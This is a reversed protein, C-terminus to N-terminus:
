SGDAPPHPLTGNDLEEYLKRLELEVRVAPDVIPSGQYDGTRNYAERLRANVYEYYSGTHVTQHRTRAGLRVRPNMSSKPLHIGNRYDNRPEIGVKELIARAEAARPDADAVIHHTDHGPPRPDGHAEMAAALEESARSYGIEQHRTESEVASHNAEGHPDMVRDRHSALRQAAAQQELVERAISRPSSPGSPPVAGSGPKKAASIPTHGPAATAAPPEIQQAAPLEAPRADGAVARRRQATRGRPVNENVPATARIRGHSRVDVQVSPSDGKLVGAPGRVAQGGGQHIALEAPPLRPPTGLVVPHVPVPPPPVFRSEQALGLAVNRARLVRLSARTKALLGPLKRAIEPVKALEGPARRLGDALMYLNVAERGIAKWDDRRCADLFREPTEIIGLVMGKLLDTTSAGHAAADAMDSIFRPEYQGFSAFHIGIQVLDAAEKAAEAFVGVVAEGAGVVLDVAKGLVSRSEKHANVADQQDSLLRARLDPLDGAGQGATAAILQDLYALEDQVRENWGPVFRNEDEGARRLEAVTGLMKALDSGRRRAGRTAGILVYRRTDLVAKLSLYDESTLYPNEPEIGAHQYEDQLYRAAEDGDISHLSRLWRRTSEYTTSVDRWQKRAEESTSRIEASLRGLDADAASLEQSSHVASIRAQVAGLRNIWDRRISSYGHEEVTAIGHFLDTSEDHLAQAQERDAASLADWPDAEPDTDRQLVGPPAATPGAAAAPDGPRDAAGEWPSRADGVVLDAPVDDRHRQQAVHMLEHMLLRRGAASQSGPHSDGLVVHRGVTYARAGVSRASQLAQAGRHLRVEALDFGFQPQLQSRTADDLAQGPTALVQHVIQPAREGSLATESGM